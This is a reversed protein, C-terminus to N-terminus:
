AATFVGVWASVIMTTADPYTWTQTFTTYSGDTYDQVCVISTVKGGVNYTYTKELGELDSDRVRNPISAM